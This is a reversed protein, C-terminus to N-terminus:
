DHMLQRRGVGPIKFLGLRGVMRKFPIPRPNRLVFGVPGFFWRSKSCTVVDVLDVIGILGGLRTRLEGATPIHGQKIDGRIFEEFNACEAGRMSSAAHILLPGRYRTSWTRNEIDKGM